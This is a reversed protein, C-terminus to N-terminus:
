DKKVLGAAVAVLVGAAIWGLVTEVWIAVRVFQGWWSYGVGAATAGPLPPKVAFVAPGWEKRQQFDVLSLLVDASFMPASFTSRASGAGQCEPRSKTAQALCDRLSAETQGLSKAPAFAGRGYGLQYVGAFFLWVCLIVLLARWPRYGYGIFLGFLRHLFARARGHVKGGERLRTQKAIALSRASDVHGMERLVKIAQEWPQPRFDVGLHAEVQHDLIALRARFDTPSNILRRYVCGDLVLNNNSFDRLPPFLRRAPPNGRTDVRMLRATDFDDWLKDMTAGTLDLRGIVWYVGALVLTDGIEVGVLALAGDASTSRFNANSCYLSGAVKTGSLLVAGIAEFALPEAGNAGNLFCDGGLRARFIELANGDPNEFRAACGNLAGDIQAGSLRAPGDCWFGNSLELLGKVRALEGDIGAVRSGEFSLTLLSADRLDVRGTLWCDVIEVPFKVECARLDLDGAIVAGRLSVGRRTAAVGPVGGCILAALFSARIRQDRGPAGPNSPHPFPRPGAPCDVGALTRDRLAREAPRLNADVFARPM